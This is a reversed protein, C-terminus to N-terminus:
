YGGNEKEKHWFRYKIYCDHSCYKRNKNGYSSFEEKCHLCLHNYIAADRKERKDQNKEWWTRRCANSCYKRPRGKAKVIMLQGCNLCLLNQAKMVEMNLKVVEGDGDLNNRKCFSRVTDRSLGLATGIAKYGMGKRRLEYIQEREYDTM